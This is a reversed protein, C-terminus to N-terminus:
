RVNENRDPSDLPRCYKRESAPNRSPSRMEDLAVVFEDPRSIALTEEMVISVSSSGRLGHAPSGFFSHELCPRCNRGGDGTDSEADGTFGALSTFLCRNAPKEEKGPRWWTLLVRVSCSKNKRFGTGQFRAQLRKLIHLHTVPTPALTGPILMFTIDKDLNLKLTGGAGM